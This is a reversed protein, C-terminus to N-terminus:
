ERGLAESAKVVWPDDCTASYRSQVINLGESLLAVLEARSVRGERYCSFDNCMNGDNMCLPRPHVSFFKCGTCPTNGLQKRYGPSMRKREPDSIVHNQSYPIAANFKERHYDEFCPLTSFQAKSIPTWERQRAHFIQREEGDRNRVTYITQGDRSILQSERWPIPRLVLRRVTRVVAAFTTLM